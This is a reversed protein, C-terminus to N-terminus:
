ESKLSKVPNMLAAKISQYSVTFLDIVVTVLGALVFVLPNITIKYTYEELWKNMIWYSLPSAILFALLVPTVFGKSMLLVIQGIGAGLVKRIGIEKTKQQALSTALGLLGLCTIFITLFAFGQAMFSLREVSAFKENYADDVFHYEFPYNPNYKRFIAKANELNEKIPKEPNYKVHIANFFNMKAGAITVANVERFPSQMVFDKVVGIVQFEWGGDTIKEGIPNKFGMMKKATENIIVGSSDTPYAKLDFDRGEIIELGLTKVIQDDAGFRDINRHDDTAKGRWKMGGTNSWTETIPSFTKVVSVAVNNKLLEAKILDFNKSIDGEVPHYVLNAKDYGSKRNQAYDLQQKIIMTCSILLVSFVFQCVVLIKRPTIPSSINFYSGKLVQLPDFSSLFLAPYSGAVLGTVVVFGLSYAIWQADWWDIVIKSEILQNFAPLSVMIIGIALVGALLSTLISESYFLKILSLRSAGSAKRVGVEKARKDSRSTSLNMFNICAILLILLAIVTFNRVQEIKGGEEVGNKFSGYLRLREFPYVFTEWSATEKDYQKRLHKVKLNFAQADTNKKLLVYTTTSNNGWHLSEMNNVVKFRWPVLCDFNFDTNTPLSKVVGTVVFDSENNLKVIQGLPESNGFLKQAFDQTIVLNNVGNLCTKIDGKLLPFTFVDLFTSDVIQVTGKIKTDKAQVLYKDAWDVRVMKEVEPYDKQLAPGMSQPTVNWSSTKGKETVQNWAQFIRERNEHTNEFNMEDNVWLLILASASFGIALGLINISSFVKDNLLNRFAIKLYNRLM